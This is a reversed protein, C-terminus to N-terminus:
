IPLHHARPEHYWGMLRLLRLQYPTPNRLRIWRQEPPLAPLALVRLGSVDVFTLGGTDVVIYAGQRCGALALALAHSNSADIQGILTVVPAEATARVTVKLQEDQHLLREDLRNM